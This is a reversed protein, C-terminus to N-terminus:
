DAAPPLVAATGKAHDFLREMARTLNREAVAIEDEKFQTRLNLTADPKGDTYEACLRLYNHANRPGSEIGALVADYISPQQETVVEEIVAKVSAKVARSMSDKSGRPRGVRTTKRKVRVYLVKNARSKM